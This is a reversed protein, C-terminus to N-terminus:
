RKEVAKRLVQGARDKAAEHRSDFAPRLFPRAAMAPHRVGGTTVLGLEGEFVLPQGAIEHSTAGTELYRWYWKEDPMGVDATVKGKTSDTVEARIMPEPARPNAADVIEQAAELAADELVREVDPGLKRLAKLLEEGGEIQISIRRAM